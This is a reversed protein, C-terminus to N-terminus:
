VSVTLEGDLPQDVAVTTAGSEESHTWEGHADDRPGKRGSKGKGGHRWSPHGHYEKSGGLVTVAAIRISEATYGFTGTIELEGDAYEFEIESTADQEISDGDDLYLSGSAKGERDPAVIIEFPQKRTETTTYGSKQRVPLVSGGRVHLPIETFSINNLTIEAGRGEVVEWSGWTYFRDVPLYITVSTSNEETVPSVLISDGYFFQLQNGFTNTDHPYLFFLPNIVPTGDITQKHFATYIYDLLKYRIDFANRAAEAVLDWLYFEQPISTDGNHNRSFTYFAGLTAWRACLTSTTNGGFGCIDSGVMPVQFLTAFNLMGQISNRYQAWTSLNDGLWKGVSRGAGAFTSRTIVMPRRTPRRALMATRSAESMMTGYLNHVDLEVHGDYHVIDTDLTFNSLGGYAEFTNENNIQYPPALFDRDPYGILAAGNPSEPSQRKVERKIPSADIFRKKADNPNSDPALWPPAYVYQDPPYPAAGPQFEPGFGPIPRPQSRLEPRTPPFGREETTEDPDDGFYNFNAAENMDIWLADIDLGDEANFFDLFENNWYEQTDPHFWDPFATVGPWVVGRYVTGNKYVFYGNDRATLFTDYPLNDYKEEQYAVAPDVMVVYHQDHEHLYDVIDRMREMPFRDPDTTMIYRAYMYDIDTWMTELPIGASSYNTVVEAVAYFDRYGYRCQHFGFGWYPMMAPLGAIEAYQKSVETPAPGAVFYLDLIGSILNYELHQGGVNDIKVDMGSSSLLFVGHTGDEGRHDFYVPHNGYLNTGEPIGYSDRSWLTRTYNTANLKFNDSHEGLGYLNPSEPLSTRLRLYQDQFVLPAASSDFLVEGSAKRVVRFSFPSTKHEFTLEAQEPSVSSSSDPSPFVSVPVQYAIAAADEIKVHLRKETDYNVTLKLDEIDKGYSNCAPGALALDATLGTGSTQVNTATYGPCAAANDQRPLLARASATAAIAAGVLFHM